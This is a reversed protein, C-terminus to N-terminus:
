RLVTDTWAEIWKERSSAVDAPAVEAPQDAVKAYKEFVEPLRANKNAPFVFMNLPIDEQFTRGLMFDIFKRAAEPNKAGKLVGAFEIQRFCSGPSVVAATPADEPKKEAFHVEAPPSSAYSVVIPRNGKSSATFHGYYADNWGNVALVGNAKLKKWYELYGDPGFRGVTALLFALGPSSVAPNEVVTLDKYEPKALDELGQPPALKKDAFWKKDYNLCVDGYDVPLLRNEPDLKLADIVEALAPSAYPEFIGSDLARTLFTNDVGYFLDALPNNKSLIAQTLAAGADGSKLVKLKVQNEKEFSEIVTQSINFSDHTMLVLEPDAAPAPPAAALVTLAALSVFIMLARKMMAEEEFRGRQDPITEGSAYRGAIPAGPANPHNPGTKIRAAASIFFGDKKPLVTQSPADNGEGTNGTDPEVTPGVKLTGRLGTQDSSGVPRKIDQM